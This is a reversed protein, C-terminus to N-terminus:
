LIRWARRVADQIRRVNKLCVEFGVKNATNGLHIIGHGDTGGRLYSIVHILFYAPVASPDLTKGTNGVILVRVAPTRDSNSSSSVRSFM